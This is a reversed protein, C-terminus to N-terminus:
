KCPVDESELKPVWLPPVIPCDNPVEGDQLKKTLQKYPDTEMVLLKDRVLTLGAAVLTRADFSNSHVIVQRLHPLDTLEQGVAILATEEM